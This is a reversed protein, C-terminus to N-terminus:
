AELSRFFRPISFRAFTLRRRQKRAQAYSIWHQEPEGVNRPAPRTVLWYSLNEDLRCIAGRRDLLNPPGYVRFLERRESRFRRLRLM